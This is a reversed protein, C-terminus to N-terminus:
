DNSEDSEDEKEIVRSAWMDAFHLLMQLPTEKLDYGTHTYKGNHFYIAHEEEETLEIFQKAIVISRVEHPVYLLEPNTKYPKATSQVPEPNPNAKTPRVAKYNPVYNPKQYDGMKGLDHLLACIVISDANIDTNLAISTMSMIELVNLSHELLGGERSLHHAGSCPAEFFGNREMHDILRDINLRNTNLLIQKFKDKM